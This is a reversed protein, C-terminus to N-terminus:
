SGQDLLVSKMTKLKMATEEYEKEPDSDITIGAGAYFRAMKDGIQACRLNVFIDTSGKYNIPGLFGAYFERNYGEVASIFQLSKDLPMGCVASTPHLLKLMISGLNESNTKIMDVEFETKLHALNGAKATKPGKEDFERLRIKKFCDVIYRSVMAQEEIEKQRWAIDSIDVDDPLNQTGALSVTRFIHNDHIQILQEPTAGMWTGIGPLYIAYKMAGPYRKALIELQNFLDFGDPLQHDEFRSLVVKQLRGAKIEDVASMVQHRYDTQAIAPTFNSRHKKSERNQFAELDQAAVTPDVTEIVEKNNWNFSLDAKIHIPEPADISDFRNVVFGSDISEIEREKQHLNPRLDVIMSFDPSNPLQWVAMPFESDLTTKWIEAARNATKSLEKHAIIREELNNIIWYQM